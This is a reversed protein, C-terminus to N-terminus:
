LVELFNLLQFANFVMMWCSSASVEYIRMEVGTEVCVECTLPVTVTVSPTSSTESTVKLQNRIMFVVSQVSSHAKM